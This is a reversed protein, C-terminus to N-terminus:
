HHHQEWLCKPSGRCRSLPLGRQSNSRSSYELPELGVNTAALASLGPPLDQHRSWQQSYPQNNNATSSCRIKFRRSTARRLSHKCIHINARHVTPITLFRLGAPCQKISVNYSAQHVAYGLDVQPLPVTTNQAEVAVIGLLGIAYLLNLM